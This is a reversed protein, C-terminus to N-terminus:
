VSHASVSCAAIQTINEHKLAAPLDDECVNWMKPWWIHQAEDYFVKKCLYACLSCIRTGGNNEKNRQGSISLQLDHTATLRTLQMPPLKCDLKSLKLRCAHYTSLTFQSSARTRTKTKSTQRGRSELWLLISIGFLDFPCGTTPCIENGFFRHPLYFPQLPFEGNSHIIFLRYYVFWRNFIASCLCRRFAFM